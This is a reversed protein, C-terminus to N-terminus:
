SFDKTGTLIMNKLDFNPSFKSTFSVSIEITENKKQSTTPTAIM